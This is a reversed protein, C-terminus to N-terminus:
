ADGSVLKQIAYHTQPAGSHSEQRLQKGRCPPSRGPSDTQAVPCPSGSGSRPRARHTQTSSRCGASAKMCSSAYTSCSALCWGSEQVRGPIDGVVLRSQTRLVLGGPSRQTRDILNM